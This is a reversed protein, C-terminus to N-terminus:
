SSGDKRSASIAASSNQSILRDLDDIDVLFLPVTPQQDYRFVVVFPFPVIDVRGFLSTVPLTLNPPHYFVDPGAFREQILRRLQMIRSASPLDRYSIADHYADLGCERLIQLSTRTLLLQQPPFLFTSV